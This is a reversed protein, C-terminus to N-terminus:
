NMIKLIPQSIAIHVILRFLLMLLFHVLLFKEIRNENRPIKSIARECIRRNKQLTTYIFLQFCSFDM